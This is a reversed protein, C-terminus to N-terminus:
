SHDDKLPISKQWDLPGTRIIKCIPPLEELLSFDEYAYRKNSTLVFPQWRFEPLYKAFKQQRLVGSGEKPPFSFSVILVNKM